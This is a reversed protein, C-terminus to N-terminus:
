MEGLLDSLAKAVKAVAVGPLMLVYGALALLGVVVNAIIWLVLGFVAM